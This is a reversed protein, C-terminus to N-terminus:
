RTRVPYVGCEDQSLGSKGALNQQWQVAEARRGSNWRDSTEGRTRWAGIRILMPRPQIRAITEITCGHKRDDLLTHEEAGCPALLKEEIAHRALSATAAVHHM